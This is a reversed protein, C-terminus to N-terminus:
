SSRSRTAGTRCATPAARSRRPHPARLPPRRARRDLHRRERGAHLPDLRPHRGPGRSALLHRLPGRDARAWFPETGIARLPAVQLRESGQMLCAGAAPPQRSPPLNPRRPAAPAPPSSPAPSAPRRRPTRARQEARRLQGLRPRRAAGRSQGPGRRHRHRRRAPADGRPDAVLAVRGRRRQRVVAAGRQRGPPLRPRQRAPPQRRGPLVPPHDATRGLASLLALAAGEGSSQLDWAPRGLSNGATAAPASAPSVSKNKGSIAPADAEGGRGCAALSLASAALLAFRM